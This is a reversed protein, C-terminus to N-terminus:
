NRGLIKEDSWGRNVQAYIMGRPLDM